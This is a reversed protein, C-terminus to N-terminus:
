AAEATEEEVTSEAGAAFAQDIVERLSKLREVSKEPDPRKETKIFALLVEDTVPSNAVMFNIARQRFSLKAAKTRKPLALEKSKLWKRIFGLAQKHDTDPVGGNVVEGDADLVLEGTEDREGNVLLEQMAEVDDWKEPTFDNAAMVLTAQERRQATSIIFGQTAIEKKVLSGLQKIKFTVGEANLKQICATFVEIEFQDPDSGQERQEGQERVIGKIIDSQSMTNQEDLELKALNTTLNEILDSRSANKGQPIGNAKCIKGLVAVTLEKVGAVTDTDLIVEGDSTAKVYEGKRLAKHEGSILYKAM